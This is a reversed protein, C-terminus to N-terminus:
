NHLIFDAFCRPCSLIIVQEDKGIQSFFNFSRWRVRMMETEVRDVAGGRVFSFHENATCFIPSDQEFVIDHAYHTKPAPFRVLQGELLLLFNHWPLIQASWRFDNLFIVECNEVGVWAFTATAPNTFTDYIVNLPNLIFTKGCNAPGTIIINRYKGRGEELLVRVAGAFQSTEINNRAMINTALELWKKNCNSVCNGESAVKLRELRSQRSRTVLRPAESLEWAVRIAEEVVKAGRNVIFQALDAKGEKQQDQAFALLELRSKIGQRVVIQSVEYASLQRKRKKGKNGRGGGRSGAGRRWEDTARSTRPPCSNSLDPHGESQIYQLDEKTTYRWASYYNDHHNSFNVNVGHNDHILSRVRRWRRRGTLKVAMHYHFGSEKHNEKSCVWQLIGINCTSFANLVVTVFSERTPCKEADVQSYTILYVARVQRNSLGSENPLQDQCDM